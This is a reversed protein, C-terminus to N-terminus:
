FILEGASMPRAFHYGQCTDCGLAVLERHQEATEVGEATVTMGLAHSLDIVASVIAHSSTDGALDTVFSRDIKVIDVPFRNLQSLSSYGTGFDDLAIQVGLEKLDTLVVLAREGDQIFASETLELTIASPDTSTESLVKAVTDAFDPSMLQHVSVNLSLAVDPARGSSRWRSRDRCAAELVWRGIETILGAQEALPIFIAPPVTGRDAHTWRLLAEVGVIQGDVAAVIPQYVVRLEGRGVAMALDQTLDGRHGGRHQDPWDLIQHRAGGRRKAEYMARDAEHLIQEPTVEDGQGAFAIGLSASVQVETGSLVFPVRLEAGLRGAIADAESAGTLDECLIVFEDGSLRALTDGARLAASLREAVAVLLEDGTRHGHVDNVVKFRDLDAFLVALRDGSRRSKVLAHDLRELLLVRNPLGTLADHLSNEHYRVSAEMLDSRAQANLLYAAAVDALTQAAVMTAQDLAGPSDRYLDLAGMRQEGHRLPFTFVAALGERLAMPAFRTFRGETGLDAVAIAEGTRYAALCPGEGLETQLQEFRLAARDSAAVYRPQVGASILTVGAGTIPLIDVIRAVLRDLIDQIPFDTVMTRAFDSLVGSLQLESPV